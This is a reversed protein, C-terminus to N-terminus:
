YAGEAWLSQLAWYLKCAVSSCEGVGKERQKEDWLVGHMSLTSGHSLVFYLESGKVLGAPKTTESACAKLCNLKASVSLPFINGGVEGKNPLLMTNLPIM